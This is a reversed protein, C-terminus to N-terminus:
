RTTISKKPKKKKKLSWFVTQRASSFLNTACDPEWTTEMSSRKRERGKVKGRLWIRSRIGATDIRRQKGRWLDRQVVTLLCVCVSRWWWPWGIRGASAVCVGRCFMDMWGHLHKCASACICVRIWRLENTNRMEQLLVPYYFLCSWFFHCFPRSSFLPSSKSFLTGRDQWTNLAARGEAQRVIVNVHQNEGWM